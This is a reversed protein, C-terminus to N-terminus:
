DPVLRKLQELAKQERFELESIAGSEFLSHLERMQQLYSSRLNALKAPSIGTSTSASLNGSLGMVCHSQSAPPTMVQVMQTVASTLASIQSTKWGRGGTFAPIGPPDDVSRDYTPSHPAFMLANACLTFCTRTYM